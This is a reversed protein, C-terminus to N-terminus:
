VHKLDVSLARELKYTAGRRKTCLARHANRQAVDEFRGYCRPCHTCVGAVLHRRMQTARTFADGCRACRVHEGLHAALHQQLYKGTFSCRAWGCAQVARTGAMGHARVFHVTRAAQSAPLIAGCGGWACVLRDASLPADSPGGDATRETDAAHRQQGCSSRHARREDVSAFARRCRRCRLCSARAAHRRMSEVRSFVDGCLPCGVGERMHQALHRRLHRGQGVYQCTAWACAQRGRFTDPVGHVELFHETREVRSAPLPAGCGGWKCFLEQQDALLADM